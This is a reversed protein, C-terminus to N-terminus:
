NCRYKTCKRIRHRIENFFYKIIFRLRNITRTVPTFDSSVWNATAYPSLDVSVSGSIYLGNKFTMGSANTSAGYSGDSSCYNNGHIDGSTVDLNGFLTTLKSSGSFKAVSDGKGDFVELDRFQTTGSNYGTYNITVSANGNTTNEEIINNRINLNSNVYNSIRLPISTIDEWPVSIAGGTFLGNKFTFGGSAASAGYTGDSSRYANPHVDGSVDLSGFLETLKISGIFKAVGNGTGDYISFDRFQTLGSQYGAYNVAIESNSNTHIEEIMNERVRVQSNYFDVLKNGVLDGNYLNGFPNCIGSYSLPYTFTGRINNNNVAQDTGTSIFIGDTSTGTIKNDSIDVTDPPVDNNEEGLVMIGSYYSTFDQMVNNKIVISKLASGSQNLYAIVPSRLRLTNVNKIINGEVIHTGGSDVVSGYSGVAIPHQIDTIGLGNFWTIDNEIINGTITVDKVVKEYGTEGGENVAYIGGFGFGKIKNSTVAAGIGGHIDIGKRYNYNATVGTIFINANDRVIGVGYPYPFRGSITIGYGDTYPTYGCYSYSGGFVTIQYTGRVLLGAYGCRQVSCNEVSLKDCNIIQIGGYIANTVTLNKLIVTSCDTIQLVSLFNNAPNIGANTGQFATGDIYISGNKFQICGEPAYYNGASATDTFYIKSNINSTINIDNGGLDKIIKSTIKYAPKTLMLTKGAAANIALKFADTDDNLGDGIAGYSEPYIMGFSVIGGGGSSSYSGSSDTSPSSTGSTVVIQRLDYDHGLVEVPTLALTREALDIEISIYFYRTSDDIVNDLM